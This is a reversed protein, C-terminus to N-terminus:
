DTGRRKRVDNLRERANERAADLAERHAPMKDLLIQRRRDFEERANRLRQQWERLRERYQERLRAREEDTTANQLRKRLLEEERLYAERRRNFRELLRRVEPSLDQREPRYPRLPDIQTPDIPASEFAKPQVVQGMRERLTTTNSPSTPTISTQALCPLALLSIGAASLGIFQQHRKM